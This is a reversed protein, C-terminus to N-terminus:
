NGVVSDFPTEGSPIRAIAFDLFDRNHVTFDFKPIARCRERAKAAEEDLLEFATFSFKLGPDVRALADVFVGDGCSPELVTKPQNGTAWRSIYFALDPPTYYGGRLKQATENIKFNM